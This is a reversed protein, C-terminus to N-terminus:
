LTSNNGNHIIIICLNCSYIVAALAGNENLGIVEAGYGKLYFVAIMCVTIFHLNILAVFAACPHADRRFSTTKASDLSMFSFPAAQLPEQNKIM